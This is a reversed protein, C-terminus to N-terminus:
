SVPHDEVVVEDWNVVPRSEAVVDEDMTSV